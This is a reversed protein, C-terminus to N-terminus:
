PIARYRCFTKKGLFRQNHVQMWTSNKQLFSWRLHKVTNLIHRDQYSSVLIYLSRISHVVDPVDLIRAYQFSYKPINLSARNNLCIWVYQPMTLAYEPNYLCIWCGRCGKCILLSAMNLARDYKSSSAYEFGQPFKVLCIWFGAM